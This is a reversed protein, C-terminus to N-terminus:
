RARISRLRKPVAIGARRFTPADLPTPSVAGLSFNHWRDIDTRPVSLSKSKAKVPDMYSRTDFHEQTSKALRPDTNKRMSEPEAIGKPEGWGISDKFRALLGQNKSTNAPIAKRPSEWQQHVYDGANDVQNRRVEASPLGAAAASVPDADRYLAGVTGADRGLNYLEGSLQNLGHYATSKLAERTTPQIEMGLLNSPAAGGRLRRIADMKGQALVSKKLGVGFNLLKQALTSHPKGLASAAVYEPAQVASNVIAGHLADGSMVHGLGGGLAAAGALGIRGAYRQNDPGIGGIGLKGPKKLYEVVPNPQLNEDMARLFNQSLESKLVGPHSKEVVAKIKPHNRIEDMTTMRHGTEKEHQEILKKAIEKSIEYDGLGSVSPNFAATGIGQRYRPMMDQGSLAAQIGERSMNAYYPELFEWSRAKSSVLADLLRHGLLSKAFGPAHEMIANGAHGVAGPIQHAINGVVNGLHDLYQPAHQMAQNALEWGAAEKVFAKIKYQFEPTSM